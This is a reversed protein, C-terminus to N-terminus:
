SLMRKAHYYYNGGEDEYEEVVSLGSAALLARYREAGLSVSPLSTLVDKWTAKEMPATFLLRGGPNLAVAMKAIVQEQVEESLLFILGITIIGDFTREFFSSREVSECRVPITPFNQSFVKVMAPSADLASVKLGKGVLVGTVPLGSGCGVDLMTEGERFSDAWNRITAEGTASRNLIYDPAIQEYGNSEDTM